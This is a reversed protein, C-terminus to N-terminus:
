TIKSTIKVLFPKIAIESTANSPVFALIHKAIDEYIEWKQLDSGAAIWLALSPNKLQLRTLIEISM